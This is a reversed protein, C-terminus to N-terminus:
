PLWPRLRELLPLLKRREALAGLYDEPDFPVGALPAGQRWWEVRSPEGLAFRRAKHQWDDTQWLVVAFVACMGRREDDASLWAL